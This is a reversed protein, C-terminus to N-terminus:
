AEMDGGPLVTVPPPAVTRLPLLPLSPQIHAGRATEHSTSQAMTVAGQRRPRSSPQSLAISQAPTGMTSPPAVTSVGLSLAPPIVAGQATEHLLRTYSNSGWAHLWDRLSNSPAGLHNTAFTARSDSLPTDPIGALLTDLAGKFTALSGRHERLQIPLSNFIRPAETSFSRERLTRVAMRSGRLSPIRVMLGRRGESGWVLGCNPVLGMVIKWVYLARYRDVRRETSM